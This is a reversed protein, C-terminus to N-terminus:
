NHHIKNSHQVIKRFLLVSALLIKSTSRRQVLGCLTLIVNTFHNLKIWDSLTIGKDEHPLNLL